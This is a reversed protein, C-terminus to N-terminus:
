KLIFEFDETGINDDYLIQGNISDGDFFIFNIQEDILEGYLLYKFEIEKQDLYDINMSYCKDYSPFRELSLSTLSEDMPNMLLFGSSTKYCFAPYKILGNSKIYASVYSSSSLNEIDYIEFTGSEELKLESLYNVTDNSTYFDLSTVYFNQEELNYNEVKINRNMPIKERIGATILTTGNRSEVNGVYIKYGTKILSNDDYAYINTYMNINVVEQQPIEKFFYLYGIALIGIVFIVIFILTAKM